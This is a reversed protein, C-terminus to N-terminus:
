SQGPFLCCCRQGAHQIGQPSLDLGNSQKFAVVQDKLSNRRTWETTLIQVLDAALVYSWINM